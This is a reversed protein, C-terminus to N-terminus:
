GDLRTILWPILMEEASLGGHRGRLALRAERRDLYHQGRALAVFSGLRALAEPAPAALGFLGAEVLDRTRQVSFAPGLASQIIERTEEAAGNAPHLFATRAEGSYPILLQEGLVPDADTIHAEEIPSDVFGHDACIAVVLGQRQRAALQSLFRAECACDLASYQDRWADSSAGHAHIAKDIGGWYLVCLGPTSAADEITQRATDWADGVDGCGIVRTFEKYCVRSLTGQQYQAPVIATSHVGANRLLAGLSPGPLLSEPVLGWDLLTEKGTGFAPRLALMQALVGYERLWLEYGLLGHAIPELGTALTALATATTSPCVSTMPLLLGHRALQTLAGSPRAALMQELQLYGLADVVILLVQRAPPELGDMYAPLLPPTLQPAEVGFLAALTAPVNALSRGAYDPWVFEGLCETPFTSPLAARRLEREMETAASM